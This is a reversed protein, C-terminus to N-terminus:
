SKMIIKVIKNMEGVPDEARLVSGSLAIGTVGAAMLVPIDADTIGGIAVLPQKIGLRSMQELITRYGDVGLM